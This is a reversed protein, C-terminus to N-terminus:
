KLIGSKQKIIERIKKYLWEANEDFVYYGDKNKILMIEDLIEKFKQKVKEAKIYRVPCITGEEVDAPNDGIFDLSIENIYEIEESLPKEKKM